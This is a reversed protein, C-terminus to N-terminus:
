ISLLIITVKVALCDIIEELLDDEIDNGDDEIMSGSTATSSDSGISSITRHQQHQKRKGKIIIDMASLQMEM